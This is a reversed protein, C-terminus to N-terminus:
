FLVWLFVLVIVLLVATAVVWGKQSRGHRPDGKTLAEFEEFTDPIRTEGLDDAPLDVSLYDVDESDRWGTTADSGCAPCSMRGELVDEGCHPCPFTKKKRKVAATGVGPRTPVFDIRDPGLKGLVASGAATHDTGGRSGRLGEFFCEM